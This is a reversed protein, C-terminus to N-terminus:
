KGGKAAPPLPPASPGTRPPPPASPGGPPAAPPPQPAGPAVLVAAGEPGPLAPQAGPAAAPKAQLPNVVRGDKILKLASFVVAEVARETKDPSPVGYKMTQELMMWTKDTLQAKLKAKFASDFDWLAMAWDEIKVSTALVSLDRESFKSIDEPLFISPRVKGAIEPHRAELQALMQRKAKLNVRDLADIVMNVGGFAGALRKELEERITAIIDPDVFRMRAMNAMVESSVESPLMRLFESKAEEPLHGAVLSINEPDEGAMLNVLFDVQEVKVNFIADADLELQPHREKRETIDLELKGGGGGVGGVTVGGGGGGAAGGPGGAGGKGLDMTIQHSQQAKAMTNMASALKLFGVAVVMMSIIGMLTLVGYKFIIGVAEPTYWITRWIPAFPTRIVALDDGRKADLGLVESVVSRVNQADAESMDKNVVVTIILKRVFSAPFLIQKQYSQNEAEANMSPFGPLLYENFPQGETSPNQWKFMEGGAGAKDGGGKIIDVKEVRTFDMSAQVVVKAQNPGLLKLLVEDVKTELSKEYRAKDDLPLSQARLAPAASLQFCSLLLAAPLLGSLRGAGRGVTMAAKEM